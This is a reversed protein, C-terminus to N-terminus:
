VRACSSLWCWWVWCISTLSANWRKWWEDEYVLAVVAIVFEVKLLRFSSVIVEFVKLPRRQRRSVSLVMVIITSLELSEERVWDGLETGGTRASFDIWVEVVTKL